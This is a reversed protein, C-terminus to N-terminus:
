FGFMGKMGDFQGAIKQYIQQAQNLQNQNIQGSSVLRNLLENPDQGRMRNMFQPFMQMLNM